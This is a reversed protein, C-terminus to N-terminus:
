FGAGLPLSEDQGKLKCYEDLLGNIAARGDERSIMDHNMRSLTARIQQTMYVMSVHKYM